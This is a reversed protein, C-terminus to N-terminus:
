TKRATPSSSSATPTSTAWTAPSSAATPCSANPPQKRDRWIAAMATPTRAAIEGVEGDPVDNGSEDVIRIEANPTPRGASRLRGGVHDAPALVTLPVAESQGYMQYM